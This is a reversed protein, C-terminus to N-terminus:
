SYPFCWPPIQMCQRGLYEADPAAGMDNGRSESSVLWAAWAQRQMRMEGGAQQIQRLMTLRRERALKKWSGSEAAVSDGVDRSKHGPCLPPAAAGERIASPDAQAESQRLFDTAHSPAEAGRVRAGM